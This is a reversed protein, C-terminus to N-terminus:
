TLMSCLRYQGLDNDAFARLLCKNEEAVSENGWDPFFRQLMAKHTIFFARNLRKDKLPEIRRQSIKFHALLLDAKGANSLGLRERDLMLKRTIWLSDISKYSGHSTMSIGKPNKRYGYVVTDVNARVAAMDDLLFALISDEFWYKEPYHINRFLEGKYVKGWSFGYLPVNKGGVINQRRITRITTKGYFIRYGGEVIDADSELACSVMSEIANPRLVDDADVFMIYKGVIHALGSNRAGSLGKNAQRIVEVNERGEYKRLIEPSRDTSGDDVICLLFSYGTQQGLISEICEEVFEEANYVPLIVQLDYRANGDIHNDCVATSQPYDPSLSRIYEESERTQAEGSAVTEHFFGRLLRYALGNLRAMRLLKAIRIM